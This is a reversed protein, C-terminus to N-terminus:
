IYIYLYLFLSILIYEINYTLIIALSNLHMWIIDMPLFLLKNHKILLM